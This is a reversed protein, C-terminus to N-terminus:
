ETQLNGTAQYYFNATLNQLIEVVGGSELDSYLNPRVEEPSCYQATSPFNPCLVTADSNHHLMSIDAEEAGNFGCFRSSNQGIKNVRM